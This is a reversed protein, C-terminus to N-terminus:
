LEELISIVRTLTSASFGKVIEISFRRDRLYLVLDKDNEDADCAHLPAVALPYFVQKHNNENNLKRKWYGFTSLPINHATCYGVQSLDSKNCAEIHNKWFNKKHVTDM